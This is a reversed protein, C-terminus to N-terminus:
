WKVALGHKYRLDVTKPLMSHSIVLKPYVEVFRQVKNLVSGYGLILKVNNDLQVTLFDSSSLKIQKIQLFLPALIRNIQQYYDLMKVTIDNTGFFSPLSDKPKYPLKFIEGYTNLFEDQNWHAIPVWSIISISLRDPWIRQIDVDAVGPEKEIMLRMHELDVKLLNKHYVLSNIMKEFRHNPLMSSDCYLTVKRIPLNQPNFIFVHIGIILGIIFLALLLFFIFRRM